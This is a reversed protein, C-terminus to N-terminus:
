SRSPNRTSSLTDSPLRSARYHGWTASGDSTSLDLPWPWGSNQPSAAWHWIQTTTITNGCGSPPTSSFKMWTPGTISLCGSMACLGTSANLMRTKSLTAQSSTNLTFAGTRPGNPSRAASTRQGTTAAFSAQSGQQRRQRCTWQGSFAAAQCPRRPPIPPACRVSMHAQFAQAPPPIVFSLTTWPLARPVDSRYRRSVTYALATIGHTPKSLPTAGRSIMGLSAQIPTGQGQNGTWASSTRRLTGVLGLRNWPISWPISTPLVETHEQKQLFKAQRYLISHSHNSLAERRGLVDWFNM